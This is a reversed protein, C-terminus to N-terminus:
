KYDFVLRRAMGLHRWLTLQQTMQSGPNGDQRPGSGDDVRARWLSVPLITEVARPICDM